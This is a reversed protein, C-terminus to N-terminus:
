FTRVTLVPFYILKSPLSYGLRAWSAAEKVVCCPPPPQTVRLALPSGSSAVSPFSAFVGLLPVSLHNVFPLLFIEARLSPRSGFSCPGVRRGILRGRGGGHGWMGVTEHSLLVSPVLAQRSLQEVPLGPVRGAARQRPLPRLSAPRDRAAGPAVPSLTLFGSNRDRSVLFVVRSLGRVIGAETEEAM